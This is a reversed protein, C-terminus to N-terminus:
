TKHLNDRKEKHTVRGHVSEQITLRPGPNKHLQRKIYSKLIQFLSSLFMFFFIHVIYSILKLHTVINSKFATYIKLIKCDGREREKEIENRCIKGTCRVWGLRGLEEM